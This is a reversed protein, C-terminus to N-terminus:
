EGKSARLQEIKKQALPIRCPYVDSHWKTAKLYLEYESVASQTDGLKEYIGALAWHSHANNAEDGTLATTQATVPSLDLEAM